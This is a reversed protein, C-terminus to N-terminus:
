DNSKVLVCYQLKENFGQPHVLDLKKGFLAWYRLKLYMKDLCLSYAEVFRQMSWTISRQFVSRKM